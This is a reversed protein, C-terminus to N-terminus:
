GAMVLYEIRRKGAQRMENAIGNFGVGVLGNEFGQRPEAGSHIDDGFALESACKRGADGRFFDGKGTNALRLRFQYKREFLVYKAEIDFRLRLEGKKGFNCCTLVARGTRREPDVGIDIGFGMGLDAGALRLVFEANRNTAGAFNIGFGSPKRPYLDGADVNM